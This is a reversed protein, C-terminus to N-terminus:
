DIRRLQEAVLVVMQLKITKYRELAATTWDKLLFDLFDVYSVRGEKASDLSKFFRDVEKHSLTSRKDATHNILDMLEAKCIYGDEDQDLRELLYRWHDYRCSQVHAFALRTCLTEHEQRTVYIFPYSISRAPTINQISQIWLVSDSNHPFPPPRNWYMHHIFLLCLFAFDQHWKLFCETQQQASANQQSCFIQEPISASM